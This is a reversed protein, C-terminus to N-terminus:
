YGITSPADLFFDRPARVTYYPYAVQGSPPGAPQTQRYYNCPIQPVYDAQNHMGCGGIRGCGNAAYQGHGCNQCDQNALQRHTQCGIAAMSLLALLLLVRKMLDIGEAAIDPDSEATGTRFRAAGTACFAVSTTVFIM